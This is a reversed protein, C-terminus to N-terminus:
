GLRRSDLADEFPLSLRSRCGRVDLVATTNTDQLGCMPRDFMPKKTANLERHSSPVYKRCNKLLFDLVCGSRAFELVILAPEGVTCVGM